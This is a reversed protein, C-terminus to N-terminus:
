TNSGELAPQHCPQPAAVPPPLAGAGGGPTTGSASLWQGAGRWHFWEPESSWTGLAGLHLM